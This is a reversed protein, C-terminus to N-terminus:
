ELIEFFDSLYIKESNVPMRSPMENKAGGRSAAIARSRSSPHMKINHIPFGRWEVERM